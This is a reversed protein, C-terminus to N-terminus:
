VIRWAFRAAADLPLAEFKARPKPSLKGHVQILLNATQADLVHGEIVVAQHNKAVEHAKELWRM